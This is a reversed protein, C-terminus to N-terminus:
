RYFGIGYHQRPIFRSDADPGSLHAPDVGHLKRRHLSLHGDLPTDHRGIREEREAVAEIRRTGAAIAMEAVVKILGIEGTTAVHTGPVTYEVTYSGAAVNTWSFSYPATTDSGILTGNARFDVRSMRNEPDSANAALGQFAIPDSM